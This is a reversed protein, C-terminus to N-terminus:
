LHHYPTSLLGSACPDSLAEQQPDQQGLQPAPVSGWVETHVTCGRSPLSKGSPLLHRIGIFLGQVVKGIFHSKWVVGLCQHSRVASVSPCM